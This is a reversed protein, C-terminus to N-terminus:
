GSILKGYYDLEGVNNAFDFTGVEQIYGSAAAYAGTGGDILCLDVFAHDAGALDFIAQEHCRLDGKSTHIVTHAKSIGDASPFTDVQVVGDGNISGTAEFKSCVTTVSTCDPPFFNSIGRMKGHLPVSSGAASSSAASIAFATVGLLSVLALALPARRRTLRTM